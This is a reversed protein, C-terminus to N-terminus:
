LAYGGLLAICLIFRLSLFGFPEAHPMAYRAGIFGTSWMVVFLAPIAGVLFPASLRPM